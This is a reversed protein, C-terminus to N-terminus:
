LPGADLWTWLAPLDLLAGAPADSVVFAKRRVHLVSGLRACKVLVRVGAPIRENDSPRGDRVRYEASPRGRFFIDDSIPEAPEIPAVAAPAPACPTESTGIGPEPAVEVDATRRQAAPAPELPEVPEVRDVPRAGSRALLGQKVREAADGAPEVKLKQVTGLTIKPLAVAAAREQATPERRPKTDIPKPRSWGAPAKLEPRPSGISEVNRAPVTRHVPAVDAEAAEVDAVYYVKRGNQVGAPKLAALEEPTWGRELLTDARIVPAAFVARDAKLASALAGDAKDQYSKFKLGRKAAARRQATSRAMFGVSM